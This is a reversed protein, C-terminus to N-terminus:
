ILAGVALTGHLCVSGKEDKVQYAVAPGSLSALDASPGGAAATALSDEWGAAVAAVAAHRAAFAAVQPMSPLFVPKRFSVSILAPLSPPAGALLAARASATLHGAGSAHSSAAAEQLPQVAEPVRENHAAADAAAQLHEAAVPTMAASADLICPLSKELLCMGHVIASKFGFLKATSAWLHIPNYDQCLAAYAFGTNFALPAAESAICGADEMPVYKPGQLVTNKQKHFFLVTTINSWVPGTTRDKEFGEEFYALAEFDVETGRRHPRSAAIRVSLTVRDDMFLKADQRIQTRAHVSGLLAFPFASHTMLVIFQAFSVVELYFFPVPQAGLKETPNLPKAVSKRRLEHLGRVLAPDFGVNRFSLSLPPLEAADTTSYMLSKVPSFFGRLLSFWPNFHPSKGEVDYEEVFPTPALSLLVGGVFLFGCALVALKGAWTLLSILDM